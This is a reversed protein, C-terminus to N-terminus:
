QKFAYKYEPVTWNKISEGNYILFERQKLQKIETKINEDGGIDLIDAIYDVTRPARQVSVLFKDCLDFISKNVSQPRQTAITVPRIGYNRGNKILRHLQISGRGMQPMIDAVEDSMFGCKIKNDMLFVCLADTAPVLDDQTYESMDIIIKADSPFKSYTKIFADVNICYYSLPVVATKFENKPNYVGLMDLLIHKKNSETLFHALLVSKGSGKAGLVANTIDTDINM